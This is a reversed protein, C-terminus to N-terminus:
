TSDIVTLTSNSQRYIAAGSNVQSPGNGRAGSVSAGELTLHQVTFAVDSQVLFIRTTGGGSLTVLGKGDIVTDKAITKPTTVVLTTPATGCNFVVVGGAGIAAALAAENCSSPNGSGVVTTPSSVDAAMAPPM